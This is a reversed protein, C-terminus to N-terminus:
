WIILCSAIIDASSRLEASIKPAPARCIDTKEAKFAKRHYKKSSPDLNKLQEKTKSLKDKKRRIDGADLIRGPTSLDIKKINDSM